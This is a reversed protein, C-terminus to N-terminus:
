LSTIRTNGGTIEAVCRTLLVVWTLPKVNKDGNWAELLPISEEQRVISDTSLVTYAILTEPRRPRWRRGSEPRGGRYATVVRATEDVSLAAIGIFTKVTYSGLTVDHFADGLQRMAEELNRHGKEDLKLRPAQIGDIYERGRTM